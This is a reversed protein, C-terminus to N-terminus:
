WHAEPLGRYHEDAIVEACVRLFRPRSVWPLACAAFGPAGFGM